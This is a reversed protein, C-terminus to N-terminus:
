SQDSRLFGFQLGVGVIVRLQGNVRICVLPAHALLVPPAVLEEAATTKAGDKPLLTDLSDAAPELVIFFWSREDPRNLLQPFRSALRAQGSLKKALEVGQNEEGAPLHAGVYRGEARDGM